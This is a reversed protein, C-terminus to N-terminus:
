NTVPARCCDKFMNRFPFSMQQVYDKDKPYSLYEKVVGVQEVEGERNYYTSFVIDWFPIINGFNGAEELKQSHHFHHVQPTVVIYDLFGTKTQINAHSIYAIVVHTVSVAFIVQDNFGLILLPTIKLVTNLFINVPHIWNTKFWNMSEPLHHISHIKWLFMSLISNRNGTHSLRHYFYPLLEGILLAIVFSLIFPIKEWIKASTFFSDQIYLVLALAAVKGLADFLTTSLLFHKLEPWLDNKRAKWHPKLPLIKEFILIYGASFLFIFYSTIEFSWNKSIALYITLFAMAMLLPVVVYSLIKVHKM